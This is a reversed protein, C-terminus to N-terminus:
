QDAIKWSADPNYSLLWEHLEFMRMLQPLRQILTASLVSRHTVREVQHVHCVVVLVIFVNTDGNNQALLGRPYIVCVFPVIHAASFYSDVKIARIV